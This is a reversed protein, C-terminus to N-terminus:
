VSASTKKSFYKPTVLKMQSSLRRADRVITNCHFRESQPHRFSQSELIEEVGGLIVNEGISAVGVLALGVLDDM